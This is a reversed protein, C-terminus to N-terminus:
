KTRPWTTYGNNPAVAIQGDSGCSPLTPESDSLQHCTIFHRLRAYPYGDKGPRVHRGGPFHRHSRHCTWACSVASSSTRSPSGDACHTSAVIWKRRRLQLHDFHRRCSGLPPRSSMLSPYNPTKTLRHSSCRAHPTWHLISDSSSLSQLHPNKANTQLSVTHISDVTSPPIRTAWQHRHLHMRSHRETHKEMNSSTERGRSRGTEGQIEKDTERETVRQRGPERGVVCLQVSTEVQQRVFSANAYSSGDFTM